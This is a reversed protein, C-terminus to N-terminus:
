SRKNLDKEIGNDDGIGLLLGIAGGYITSVIPNSSIPCTGTPCGVIKYYAFGLACGLIIGLVIRLNM